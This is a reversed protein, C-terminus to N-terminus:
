RSRVQMVSSIKLGEVIIEDPKYGEAKKAALLAKIKAPDPSCLERPVKDSNVVQFTWQETFSAASAKARQVMPVPEPVVPAPAAPEMPAGLGFAANAAETRRQRELEEEARRAQEAEIRRREEEARRAQEMAYASMLGDCTKIVINLKETERKEAEILTKKFEDAPRTAELRKSSLAKVLKKADKSLRAVFDLEEQTTISGPVEKALIEERKEKWGEVDLNTSLTIIDSM